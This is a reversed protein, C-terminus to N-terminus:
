IKTNAINIMSTKLVAPARTPFVSKPAHAGSRWGIWEMKQEASRWSGGISNESETYCYIDNIYAYMSSKNATYLLIFLTLLKFHLATYVTDVTYVM